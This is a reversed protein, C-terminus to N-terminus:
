SELCEKGFWPKHYKLECLGQGETASTINETINGWNSNINESDNLNELASFGTQSRLRISNGLNWSM